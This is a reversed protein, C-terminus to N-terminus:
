EGVCRRRSDLVLKGNRYMVVDGPGAQQPLKKCPVIRSVGDFELIAYDGIIESIKARIM